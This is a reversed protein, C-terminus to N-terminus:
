RVEVVEAKFPEGLKNWDQAFKYATKKSEYAWSILKTKQTRTNTLKIQYLKKM